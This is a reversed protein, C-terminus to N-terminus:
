GRYFDIWHLTITRPQRELFIRPIQLEFYDIPPPASAEEPDAPRRVARITTWYPSREDLLQDERENLWLRTPVPPTQSSVAAHLTLEEQSVRLSELGRLRLRLVVVEPWKAETREMVLKGIGQPSHVTFVVRQPEDQIELREGPRTTTVRFRTPPDAGVVARSLGVIAVIASVRLLTSWVPHRAEPALQSWRSSFLM